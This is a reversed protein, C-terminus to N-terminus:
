WFRKKPANFSRKLVINQGFYAVDKQPIEFTGRMISSVILTDIDNTDKIRNIQRVKGLIEGEHSLVKHGKWLISPEIDLMLADPSLHSFYTKSIYLPSKFWGRDVVVGELAHSKKDICLKRIRGLVFGTNTITKIGLLESLSWTQDVPLGDKILADM